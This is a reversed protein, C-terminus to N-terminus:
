YDAECSYNLGEAGIDADRPLVYAAKPIDSEGGIWQERDAVTFRAESAGWRSGM